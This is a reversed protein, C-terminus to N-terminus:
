KKSESNVFLGIRVESFSKYKGRMTVLLWFDILLYVSNIFALTDSCLVYRKPGYRGINPQFLKLM